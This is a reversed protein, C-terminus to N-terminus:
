ILLKQTKTHKQKKNKTKKNKKTNKLFKKSGGTHSNKNQDNNDSGTVIKEVVAETNTKNPDLNPAAATDNGIKNVTGTLDQNNLDELVKKNIEGTETPPNLYEKFEQSSEIEEWITDLISTKNDNDIVNKLKREYNGLIWDFQSNYFIFLSNIITLERLINTMHYTSFFFRTARKFISGGGKKSLLNNKNKEVLMNNKELVTDPSIDVILKNLIGLKAQIQLTLKSKISITSINKNNNQNNQNNKENIDKIKNEFTTLTKVILAELFYCNALIDVVYELLNTLIINQKAQHAIKNCVVLIAALPLGIGSGALLPVAVHSVAEAVIFVGAAIEAAATAVEVKQANEIVNMQDQQYTKNITNITNDAINLQHKNNQVANNQVQSIDETNPEINNKKPGFPNNFFGGGKIKNKLKVRDKKLIKKLKIYTENSM